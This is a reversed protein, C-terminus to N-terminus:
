KKPNLLDLYRRISYELAHKASKERDTLDPKNFQELAKEFVSLDQQIAPEDTVIEPHPNILPQQVIPEEKKPEEGFTFTTFPNPQQAAGSYHPPIAITYGDGGITLPKGVSSAPAADPAPNKFSMGDNDSYWGDNDTIRPAVAGTTIPPTFLYPSQQKVQSPKVFQPDEAVQPKMPEPDGKPTEISVIKRRELAINMGITLMVALPDFVIIILVILWKVAEDIGLGFAKAIFVIPGVHVTEQLTQTKLKSIDLTHQHIDATYQAIDKNIQDLEDKNAAMLRRRGNISNDPLNAIQKNIQEQRTLRELKLKESEAKENELLQIQQTQAQYPLVDSQYAASLFGFIGMSTIVMLGFLVIFLGVKLLKNTHAWYRYLFSATILKGFELAGGMIVVPLFLGSFVKALGYVSFFAASGAISLVSLLLLGIFIM